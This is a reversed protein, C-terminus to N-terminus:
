VLGVYLCAPGILAIHNLCHHIADARIIHRLGETGQGGVGCQTTLLWPLAAWDQVPGLPAYLRIERYTHSHRTLFPDEEFGVFQAEPLSPAELMM